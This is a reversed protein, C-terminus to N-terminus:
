KSMAELLKARAAVIADTPAGISILKQISNTLADVDPSTAPLGSVETAVAPVGRARRLVVRNVAALADDFSAYSGRAASQLEPDDIPVKVGASKEADALLKQVREGWDEGVAGRNAPSEQRNLLDDITLERAAKNVDGGHADLAAKASTLEQVKQELGAIRRDKVSQGSRDVYTKLEALLDTKLRSLQEGVDPAASPPTQSVPSVEPTPLAVPEAPEVVPEAPLDSM